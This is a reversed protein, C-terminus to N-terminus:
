RVGRRATRRLLVGVGLLLAAVLGAPVSGRGTVPLSRGDQVVLTTSAPLSTTSGGPAQSDTEP